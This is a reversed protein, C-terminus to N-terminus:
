VFKMKRGRKWGDCIKENKQIKKNQKLNENYIWQTGYQSNKKGKAHQNEKHTKKMLEITKSKHKRGKWEGVLKGSLVRPDDIRIYIKNGQKDKFTARDKCIHKLEGSLYRPDDVSVRFCKGTKDKVIATGITNFSGGGLILNYTDDRKVFEENVLEAEKTLMDEKNEFDFLITKNFIEIGYEKQAEILARGSGMYGDNIKNTVHVGIYIKKNTIDDIRYVLYHKKKEM